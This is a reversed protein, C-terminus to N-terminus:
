VPAPEHFIRGGPTGQEHFDVSDPGFDAGLANNDAPILAAPTGNVACNGVSGGMLGQMGFGALKLDATIMDLGNRATSQTNVVQNTIRTTKQTVTLTGLGAAIIATSMAVAIMVETLTFGRQSVLIPKPSTNMAVGMNNGLQTM